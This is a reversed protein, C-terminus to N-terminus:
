RNECHKTIEAWCTDRGGRGNATDFGSGGILVDDSVASGRLVDRGSGGKLRSRIDSPTCSQPVGFSNRTLADAGLGGSAVVNCGGVGIHDDRKSGVVRVQRATVVLREVGSIRGEAGDAGFDVEHTKLDVAMRDVTFASSFEDFGSLSLVDEGSGMAYAGAAAADRVFARDDGARMEFSAVLSSGSASVLDADRTGVFRLSLRDQSDVASFAFEVINGAWRSTKGGYTVTRNSANVRWVTPRSPTLTLRLTNAGTGVNLNGAHDLGYLEVHDDGPGTRIEDLNAAGPAGSQVSDDGAGTASGSRIQLYTDAGLGLSFARVGQCESPTLSTTAPDPM